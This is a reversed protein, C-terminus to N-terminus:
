LKYDDVCPLDGVDNEVEGMLSDEMMDMKECM